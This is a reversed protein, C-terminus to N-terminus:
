VKSTLFSFKACKKTKPAITRLADSFVAFFPQRHRKARQFNVFKVCRGINSEVKRKKELFIYAFSQTLNLTGGFVNYTM